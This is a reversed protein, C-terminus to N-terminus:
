NRTRIYVMADDTFLTGEAIGFWEALYGAYEDQNFKIIKRTNADETVVLTHATLTIRGSDTPRTILKKQTFHSDPSTQHYHCMERFEHLLRPQKSFTYEISKSDGTLSFVTFGEPTDEIIFHGRPDLQVIGTEILLPHFAFEGFGVDVLFAMEGFHVILALHDYEAGFLDTKSNYVRASILRSEFGCHLLLEHFLGNLEYCFGGRKETVIKTFFQATDLEIPKGYHIDLNEFPVHLLHHKQLAKLVEPSPHVDGTYHIRKLYEQVNM